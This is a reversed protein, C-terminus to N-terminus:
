RASQNILSFILQQKASQWKALCHKRDRYGPYCKFSYAKSFLLASIAFTVPIPSLMASLFIGYRQKKRFNIQFLVNYTPMSFLFPWFFCSFCPAKDNLNEYRQFFLLASALSQGRQQYLSLKYNLSISKVLSTKQKSSKVPNLNVINIEKGLSSM